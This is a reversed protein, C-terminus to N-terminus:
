GRWDCLHLIEEVEGTVYITNGNEDATKVTVTQGVLATDSTIGTTGNTLFVGTKMASEKHSNHNM